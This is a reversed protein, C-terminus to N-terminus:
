PKGIFRNKIKHLTKTLDLHGCTPDCHLQFLIIEGILQQPIVLLEQLGERSLYIKYLVGNKVKFQKLRKTQAISQNKPDEMAKIIKQIKLDKRQLEKVREPRLVCMQYEEQEKQPKILDEQDLVFTPVEHIDVSRKNERVGVRPYRSLYDADKNECGKKHEITYDFESLKLSM